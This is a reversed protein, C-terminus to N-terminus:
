NGTCHFRYTGTAGHPSYIGLDFGTGIVRTSVAAQVGSAYVTEVTLGDASTAFPTCVINSTATVWAQGTVTVSFVLGGSTGLNISVELFNGGSGGGVTLTAVGAAATCTIGAGVCNIARARGQSTGEDRTDVTTPASVQAIATTPLLLALVIWIAKM